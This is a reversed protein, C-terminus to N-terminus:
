GILENLLTLLANDDEEQVAQVINEKLLSEADKGRNQAYLTDVQQVVAALDLM